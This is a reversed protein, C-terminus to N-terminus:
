WNIGWELHPLIEDLGLREYLKRGDGYVDFRKRRMRPQSAKMIEMRIVRGDDCIGNDFGGYLRAFEELTGALRSKIAVSIDGIKLDLREANRCEDSLKTPIM